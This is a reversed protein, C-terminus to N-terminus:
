LDGAGADGGEGVAVQSEKSHRDALDKMHIDFLRPGAAELSGVVDVGARMTHGVDVCCGMRKDMGKVAALVEMPSPWEKDEPGHNHIAVRVDYEKAFREVRGLTAHTPAAVMLTVGAAKCYDFKARVDADEDKTFYITGVATLVMGAARYRAARAGVESAPEMPLHVDKLNLYPTGLRKMAAIVGAPDLTRLSYSAVGLRVGPAGAAEAGALGRLGVGVGVVLGGRVVDRRTVM